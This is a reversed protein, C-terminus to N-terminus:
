RDTLSSSLSRLVFMASDDLYSLSWSLTESAIVCTGIEELLVKIEDFSPWSRVGFCYVSMEAKKDGLAFRLSNNHLFLRVTPDSISNWQHATDNVKPLVKEQAWIKGYFGKWNRIFEKASSRDLKGTTTLGTSEMRLLFTKEDNIM